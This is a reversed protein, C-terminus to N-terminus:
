SLPYCGSSAACRRPQRAASGDDGLDHELNFVSIVVRLSLM